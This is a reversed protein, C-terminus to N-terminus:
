VYTVPAHFDREIHESVLLLEYFNEKTLYSPTGNRAIELTTSNCIYIDTHPGLSYSPRDKCQLAAKEDQSIVVIAIILCIKISLSLSVLFVVLTGNTRGMRTSHRSIHQHVIYKYRKDYAIHM